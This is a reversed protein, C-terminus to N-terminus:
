KIVKLEQTGYWEGHLIGEWHYAPSNPKTSINIWEQRNSNSDNRSRSGSVRPYILSFWVINNSIATTMHAAVQAENWYGFSKQVYSRTFDRLRSIPLEFKRMAKFNSLCKPLGAASTGTLNWLSPVIRFVFRAAELSQSIKCYSTKDSISVPGQGSPNSGVSSRLGFYRASNRTWGSRLNHQLIQLHASLLQNALWRLNQLTLM